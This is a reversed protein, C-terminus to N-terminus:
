WPCSNVFRQLKPPTQIAAAVLEPEEAIRKPDLHGLRQRLEYPAGWAREAVIGQDFIVALLFAFPDDIILRNAWPNPTFTPDGTVAETTKRAYELLASVVAQRDLDPPVDLTPAPSTLAQTSRFSRGLVADPSKSRARLVAHRAWGQLDDQLIKVALSRPSHKAAIEQDHRVITFGVYGAPVEDPRRVHSRGGIRLVSLLEGSSAYDDAAVGEVMPQGELWTVTHVRYQGYVVRGGVGHRVSHFRGATEITYEWGTAFAEFGEPWRWRFPALESVNAVSADGLPEEDPEADIHRERAPPPRPPSELPRYWHLQEGIRLGAVPNVLRAGRAALPGALAEHYAAGAHIEFTKGDLPGFRAELASAAGRGIQRRYDPSANKLSLDYWELTQDPDVIGHQASFIVWPHGSREAYARRRLFLPSVYLDKAACPGARKASVCGLILATPSTSSSASSM